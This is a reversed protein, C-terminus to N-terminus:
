RSGLNSIKNKIINKTGVKAMTSFCLIPVYVYLYTYTGLYTRVPVTTNNLLVRRVQNYAEQPESFQGVEDLASGSLCLNM